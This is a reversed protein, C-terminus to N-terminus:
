RRAKGRSENTHKFAEQPKEPSNRPATAVPAAHGHTPARAHPGGSDQTGVGGGRRRRPNRPPGSQRGGGEEGEGETRGGEGM